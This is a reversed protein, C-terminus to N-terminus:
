KMFSTQSMLGVASHGVGHVSVLSDSDWYAQGNQNAYHSQSERTETWPTPWEATLKIDCVLKMFHSLGSHDLTYRALRVSHAGHYADHMHLCCFLLCYWHM